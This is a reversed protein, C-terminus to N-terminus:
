DEIEHNEVISLAFLTVGLLFLFGIGALIWM